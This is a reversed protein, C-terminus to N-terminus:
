SSQTKLWDYYQDWLKTREPSGPSLRNIQDEWEKASGPQTVPTAIPSLPPTVGAFLQKERQSVADDAFKAIDSMAARLAEKDTLNPIREALVILDPRKLEKAVEIKLQLAKLDVNERELSLAREAATQLQRDREGLAITRETDKVVSDGQLRENQSTLETIRTSLSRNELTLEEVKKVLGNYRAQEIYGAPVQLTPLVPTVPIPAQQVPTPQIEGSPPAAQQEPTNQETM